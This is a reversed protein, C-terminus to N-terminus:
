WGMSPLKGLQSLMGDIKTFEKDDIDHQQFNREISTGRVSGVILVSKPFKRRYYGILNSEHLLANVADIHQPSDFMMNILASFLGYVQVRIGHDQCQQILHHAQVRGQIQLVTIPMTQHIRQIQDFDHENEIGVTRVISKDYAGKKSHSHPGLYTDVYTLHSRAMKLDGLWTIWVDERQLGCEKIADMTERLYNETTMGLIYSYREKLDIHRFGTKLAHKLTQKFTTHDGQVTGYSLLPMLTPRQKKSSSSVTKEERARKKGAGGSLLLKNFLKREMNLRYGHQKEKNLISNKLLQLNKM